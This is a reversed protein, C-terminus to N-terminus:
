PQKQRKYRKVAVTIWKTAVVILILTVLFYTQAYRKYYYLKLRKVWRRSSVAFFPWFLAPYLYSCEMRVKLHTSKPVYM